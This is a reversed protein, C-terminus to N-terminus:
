IKRAVFTGVVGALSCVVLTMLVYLAATFYLKRDLLGLTEQNFTSYTTLGGIFGTTLAIRLTASMEAKTVAFVAIAAILFSGVVNVGVVGWNFPSRFTREAWLSVLYRVASGVGGALFVLLLREM